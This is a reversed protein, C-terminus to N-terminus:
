DLANDNTDILFLLAVLFINILVINSSFLIVIIIIIIVVFVWSYLQSVINNYFLPM